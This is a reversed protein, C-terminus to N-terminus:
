ERAWQHTLSAPCIELARRAGEHESLVSAAAIAQLTKGLGMDDALLARGATALFAVGEVQYPYLRAAIGPLVGGSRRIKRGLATARGRREAEEQLRRVYEGVEPAVVVGADRRAARSLAHFGEPLAGRLRGEGDFHRDLWDPAGGAGPRLRIGPAEPVGWDLHVLSSPPGQRAYQAFKRPARKRLRHLVAEIHKCTGLRNVAFDPCTCHNLRDTVSRIQVRHPARATVASTLSRAEWTGLWPDGEVHKVAVESRGRQVRAEVAARAAGEAEVVTVPQRAGYSLLTAVVHKCVPEWDFPCDCEAMLEGEDDLSLEVQYAGPRTGAM